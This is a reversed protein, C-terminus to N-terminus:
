FEKELLSIEEILASPTFAYSSIKQAAKKSALAHALSAQIAADKASLGQALLAALLGSLVDGSGGKALVPSGHPNFFAEFGADSFVSIIPTAGKLVLVIDKYATCFMKAFGLRDKQIDAASVDALGCTKLMVAFEKPHPTLITKAASGSGGARAALISKLAGCYFMDADLVVPLNRNNILELYPAYDEAQLGLGMGIALATAGDPVKDSLMLEYPVVFHPAGARSVLSVLGAGFHLASDAAMIAAGPKTGSVVAVHGFTGKHVNKKAHSPLRLDSEELLMADPKFGSEFVADSIGLSATYIKGTYDKAGDLYLQIKGAGMTVTEDAAFATGGGKIACDLASPVDCAIKYGDFGNLANILEEIKPDLVGHFGSGFLCDVILPADFLKDTFEVGTKKARETQKICGSSKPPLVQLVCPEVMVSGLVKNKLRRALVLGDAGNDGSGCVILVRAEKCCNKGAEFFRATREELAAAANEMLIDETLCLETKARTDLPRTDLFLSKM